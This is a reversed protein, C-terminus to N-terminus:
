RVLLITVTLHSTVGSYELRKYKIILTIGAFVDPGYLGSIVATFVDPYNGTSLQM